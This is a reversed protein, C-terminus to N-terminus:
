DTGTQYEYGRMYDDVTRMAPMEDDESIHNDFDDSNNVNSRHFKKERTRKSPRARGNTGKSQQQQFYIIKIYCVSNLISFFNEIFNECSLEFMKWEYEFCLNYLGSIACSVEAQQWIQSLRM